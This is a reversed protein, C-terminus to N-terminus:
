VRGWMGRRESKLERPSESTAMKGSALVSGIVGCRKEDGIDGVSILCDGRGM